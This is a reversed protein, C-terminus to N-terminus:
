AQSDRGLSIYVEEERREELFNVWGFSPQLCKIIKASNAYEACIFLEQCVEPTIDRPSFGTGGTTLILQVKDVDSWKCLVKQQPLLLHFICEHSQTVQPKRM